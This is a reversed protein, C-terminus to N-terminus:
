TRPHFVINVIKWGNPTNILQLFDVYDPCVVRATAITESVADVAVETVANTNAGGGDATLAVMREKSVARLEDDPGSGDANLMRKVLHAHLSREMRAADGAYWGDIYDRAVAEIEAYEANTMM